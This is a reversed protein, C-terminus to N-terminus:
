ALENKVYHYHCFDIGFCLLRFSFTTNTFGEPDDKDGVTVAAFGVSWDRINYIFVLGIEIM